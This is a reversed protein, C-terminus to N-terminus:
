KANKTNSLAPVSDQAYDVLSGLALKILKLNVYDEPHASVANNVSISRIKAFSGFPSKALLLHQLRTMNRISRNADRFFGPVFNRRFNDSSLFCASKDASFKLIGTVRLCFYGSQRYLPKLLFGHRRDPLLQFGVQFSQFLVHVVPSNRVIRM